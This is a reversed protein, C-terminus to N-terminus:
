DDRVSGPKMVADYTANNQATVIVEIEDAIMDRLEQSLRDMGKFRPRLILGDSGAALIKKRNHIEIGSNRSEQSAILQVIAKIAQEGQYDSPWMGNSLLIARIYSAQERLYKEDGPDAPHTM